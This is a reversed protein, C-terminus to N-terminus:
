PNVQYYEFSKDAGADHRHGKGSSLDLASEIRVDHFEFAAHAREIGHRAATALKPGAIAALLGIIAVTCLLEILNM